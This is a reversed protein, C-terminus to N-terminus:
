CIHSKQPALMEQKLGEQRNSRFNGRAHQIDLEPDFGSQHRGTM